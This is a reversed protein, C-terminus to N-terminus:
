QFECQKQPENLNKRAVTIVKNNAFRILEHNIVNFSKEEKKPKANCIERQNLNIMQYLLYQVSILTQIEVDKHNPKLSKCRITIFNFQKLNSGCIFLNFAFHSHNDNALQLNLQQTIQPTLLLQYYQDSPTQVSKNYTGFSRITTANFVRRNSIQQSMIVSQNGKPVSSGANSQIQSTQQIQSQQM